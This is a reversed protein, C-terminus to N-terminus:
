LGVKDIVAQIRPDDRVDDLRPDVKAWVIQPDREEYARELWLAANDADGLLGYAYSIFLPM